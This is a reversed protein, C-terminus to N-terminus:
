GARLAEVPDTRSARRAPLYGAVGAVFLLGGCVALYTPADTAAVGFLLTGILRTLLLSLVAGGVVGAGALTLTRGVVQGRVSAASQGLAMRIGIEATRQSVNYSLVAYIGLAALILGAAAFGGLLLLIFRRPSVARDVIASMTRYDDIPMAPDVQRIAAGVAQALAATSLRSRVVMEATSMDWHQTYPFYIEPASGEELSQHRVDAVVGVVEWARDGNLIRRGVASGGAFWREAAAQNILTVDTSGERDDATFTRGSVLPIGMAETYRHDVIRPFAGLFDGEDYSVGEVRFGWSRNRGLPTTDTLGVDEVGPVDLVRGLLDDYFAARATRTEFDQNTDVRWAVTGEPDFGLRVDLVNAFSRLLLGGGILLTLALSVEVVVLAERASAGRRGETSGRGADNLTAAEGTRSLQLAPIVGMILGAAVALLVTFVLVSGDVAVASLMPIQVATTASVARTILWALGVGVAGGALAVLLSELTLQRMLRGRDAGLASRVAMEPGRSRGRALLLNSLNLCAVLMVAGAAGALLLLATRFGGAIQERLPTVVAGLGWRDPQAEELQRSMRDLDAQAGQISVGPRLRGIMALTNGWRDTEDSIPFPNLFDVRSAPVFTSSFDFAAPLVGVVVTAEDNLVLTRGVISPDAAFRRTWFGHTLIAARPGGWASEEDTFNRGLLVPVGLVDLFDGAVGVGVLREPDGDGTLNYSDYEFFAMYGTLGDFSRNMQRYDRLNSTRSTVASMGGARSHAVWVLQGPDDFPLPRLLLPNVVSFVATNAGVGIGVILAALLFFSKERRLARLAFHADQLLANM